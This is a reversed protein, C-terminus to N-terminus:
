YTVTIKGPEPRDAKWIKGTGDTDCPIRDGVGPYPDGYPTRAIDKEIRKKATLFKRLIKPTIRNCNDRICDVMEELCDFDESLLYIKSTKNDYSYVYSAIDEITSDGHEEETQVRELMNIAYNHYESSIELIMTQEYPYDRDTYVNPFDLLCIYDDGVREKPECADPCTIKDEKYCRGLVGAGIVRHEYEQQNIEKALKKLNFDDGFFTIYLGRNDIEKSVIIGSYASLMNDVMKNIEEQNYEIGNKDVLPCYVTLSEKIKGDSVPILYDYSRGNTGEDM